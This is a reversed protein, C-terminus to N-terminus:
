KYTELSKESEDEPIKEVKGAKRSLHLLCFTKWPKNVVRWRASEQCGEKCCRTMEGVMGKGM